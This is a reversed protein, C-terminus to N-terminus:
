KLQRALEKAYDANPYKGNRYAPIRLGHRRFWAKLNKIKRIHSGFMFEEGTTRPPIDISVDSRELWVFYCLRTFELTKKEIDADNAM